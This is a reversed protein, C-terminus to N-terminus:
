GALSKRRGTGDIKGSDAGCTPALRAALEVRRGDPLVVYRHVLMSGQMRGRCELVYTSGAPLKSPLRMAKQAM